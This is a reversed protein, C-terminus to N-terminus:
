WLNQVDVKDWGLGSFRSQQALTTPYKQLANIPTGIKDFHAMMTQAFPQDIGDPLVQELLCFRADPLKSAWHILADAGEVDM